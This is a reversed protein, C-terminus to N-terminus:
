NLSKSNMYSFNPVYTEELIQLLDRKCNSFLEKTQELEGLLLMKKVDNNTKSWMEYEEDTSVFDNSNIVNYIRLTDMAEKRINRELERSNQTATSCFVARHIVQLKKPLQSIDATLAQTASACLLGLVILLNRM